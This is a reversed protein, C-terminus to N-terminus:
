TGTAATGLAKDTWTCASIMTIESPVVMGGDGTTSEGGVGVNVTVGGDGTTSTSVGAGVGLKGVSAGVMGGGSPIRM